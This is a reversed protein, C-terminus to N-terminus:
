AVQSGKRTLVHTPSTEKEPVQYLISYIHAQMDTSLGQRLM